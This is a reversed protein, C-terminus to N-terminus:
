PMVEAGDWAFCRGSAEPGLGEIVGLLCEAAHTPTFLREAPVNAQFPRSLGSDVTGPHLGVCIAEPRSRAIEIAACRLIMNLAAKASRYGYWGGVRNDSISGVRASLAAIVSRGRRPLLPVFHRLVLAPGIANVAFSRALWEPDLERLSREPGRGTEHLLGTTILILDLPGGVAEAAAAISGPHAIDITGHHVPGDNDGPVRSLAHVVEFRADAALLAVLAHGIAGNAGIIAARM